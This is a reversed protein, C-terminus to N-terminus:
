PKSEEATSPAPPASPTAAVLPMQPVVFDYPDDPGFSALERREFSAQQADRKAQEHLDDKAM